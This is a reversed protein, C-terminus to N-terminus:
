KLPYKVFWKNPKRFFEELKSSIEVAGVAKKSWKLEIVGQQKAKKQVLHQGGLKQTVGQGQKPTL